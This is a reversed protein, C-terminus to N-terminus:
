RAAPLGLREREARLFFSGASVVSDGLQVGSLINIDEGVASGLRVVREIFRGPQKPDALYVVTRDGVNQIASKPIRAGLSPGSSEIGVQAFM